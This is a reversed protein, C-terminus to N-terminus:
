LSNYYHLMTSWFFPHKLDSNLRERKVCCLSEGISKGKIIERYLDIMFESTYKDDINWLSLVLNEIPNCSFAHAVSLVGDNNNIKGLGTGCGSLILCKAYTGLSYILPLYLKGNYFSDDPYFQLYSVWPNKANVINHTALHIFDASDKVKLFESITANRGLYMTSELSNEIFLKSIKDIEQDAYDLIHNGNLYIYDIKDDSKYSSTQIGIPSYGIFRFDQHKSEQHDSLKSISFSYSIEFRNILFDGNVLLTEFPLDFLYEDPIIILKNYPELLSSIDKFLTRYISESTPAFDGYTKIRKLHISVSERLETSILPKFDIRNRSIVHRIILSDCVAFSVIAQNPNLKDQIASLSIKDIKKIKQRPMITDFQFYGSLQSVMKTSDFGSDNLYSTQKNQELLSYEFSRGAIAKNVQAYSKYIFNRKNDAEALLAFSSQASNNLLYETHILLNSLRNNRSSWALKSKFNLIKEEVEHFLEEGAVLTEKAEILRNSHANPDMQYFRILYEGKDLLSTLLDYKSLCISNEPNASIDLNRFELANSIISKQCYLLASDMLGMYSYCYGINYYSQTLEISKEPLASLRAKLGKQYQILAASHDKEELLLNGLNNYIYAQNLKEKDLNIPYYQLATCYYNFAKTLNQSKANVSAINNYINGIAISDMGEQGLQSELVELFINEAAQYYFLQSYCIGIRIKCFALHANSYNLRSDISTKYYTIANSYDNLSFLYNGIKKITIPIFINNSGYYEEYLKSAKWYFNITSKKDNRSSMIEGAQYFLGPLKKLGTKDYEFASAKILRNFSQKVKLTAGTEISEICQLYLDNIDDLSDCSSEQAFSTTSFVLLFFLHLPIILQRHNCLKKKM